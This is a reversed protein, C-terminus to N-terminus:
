DQIKKEEASELKEYKNHKLVSMPFTKIREM